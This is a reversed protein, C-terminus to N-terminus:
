EKEGEDGDTNPANSSDDDPEAGDDQEQEQEQEPEAGAPPAPPEPPSPVMGVSELLEEDAKRRVVVDTFDSGRLEQTAESDSVWGEAKMLQYAGIEKQPDVHGYADGVWLSRLWAERLLPDSDFGPADLLGTAVSEEIVWEYVPRCLDLTLWRRRKAYFRRAELM